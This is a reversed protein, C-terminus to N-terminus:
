MRASRSRLRPGRAAKASTNSGPRCAPCITAGTSRLLPRPWSAGVRLWRVAAEGFVEDGAKFHTMNKGVEKVTGAFDAGLVVPKRGGVVYGVTTTPFLDVPNASSAHVRVLVGDDSPVPRDVESVQLRNVPGPKQCVVAKMATMAAIM